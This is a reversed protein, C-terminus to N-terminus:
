QRAEPFCWSFLPFGYKRAQRRIRANRPVKAPLTSHGAPWFIAEFWKNAAVEDPFLRMIDLLTLGTRHAKGLGTLPIGPRIQGSMCALRDFTATLYM